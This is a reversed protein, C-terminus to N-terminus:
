MLFNVLLEEFFNFHLLDNFYRKQLRPFLDQLRDALLARPKYFLQSEFGALHLIFDRSRVM